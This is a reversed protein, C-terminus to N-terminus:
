FKLSQDGFRSQPELLTLGTEQPFVTTNITDNNLQLSYLFLLTGTARTSSRIDPVTYARWLLTGLLFM